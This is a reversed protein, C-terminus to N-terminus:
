TSPRALTAFGKLNQDGGQIRARGRLQGQLHGHARATLHLVGVPAIPSGDLAAYIPLGLQFNIRTRKGMDFYPFGLWADLEKWQEFQLHSPDLGALTFAHEAVLGTQIGYLYRPSFGDEDPVALRNSGRMVQDWIPSWPRARPAPTDGPTTGNPKEGATADTAIATALAGEASEAPLCAQALGPWTV